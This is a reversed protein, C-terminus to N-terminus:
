GAQGGAAEDGSSRDHGGGGATAPRARYRENRLWLQHERRADAEAQKRAFRGTLLAPTLGGLVGAGGAILAVTVVDDNVIAGREGFGTPRRLTAVLM